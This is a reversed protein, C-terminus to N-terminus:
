EVWRTPLVTGSAESPSTRRGLLDARGAIAQDFFRLHELMEGLVVRLMLKQRSDEVQEIRPRWREVCARVLQADDVLIATQRNVAGGAAPVPHVAAEARVDGGLDVIARRLWDLHSEERAIVYQYTNNFDYTGVSRAGEEHRRKLALKEGYFARLLDVLEAPKVRETEGQLRHV